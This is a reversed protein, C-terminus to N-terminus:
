NKSTSNVARKIDDDLVIFYNNVTDTGSWLGIIRGHADMIGSSCCGDKGSATFTALKYRFTGWDDTDERVDIKTIRGSSTKFDGEALGDLSEYGVVQLEQDVVATGSKVLEKPLARPPKAFWLLDFACRRGQKYLQSYTKVEDEPAFHFEVKADLGGAAMWEEKSDGFLHGRLLLGNWMEVFNVQKMKDGHKVTALGTSRLLKAPSFIEAKLQAELRM